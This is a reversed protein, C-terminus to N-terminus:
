GAMDPASTTRLSPHKSLLRIIYHYPMVHTETSAADFSRQKAQSAPGTSASSANRRTSCSGSTESHSNSQGSTPTTLSTNATWAIASLIQLCISYIYRMAPISPYMYVFSLTLVLLLKSKSCDKTLETLCTHPAVPSTCGSCRFMSADGPFM